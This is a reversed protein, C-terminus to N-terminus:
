IYKKVRLKHEKFASDVKRYRKIILIWTRWKEQFEEKVVLECSNVPISNNEFFKGFNLSFYTHRRRKKLLTASQLNFFSEIDQYRPIDRRLTDRALDMNLFQVTKELMKASIRKLNIKSDQVVEFTYKSDYSVDIIFRKRM